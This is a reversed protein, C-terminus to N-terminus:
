LSGRGRGKVSMSVVTRWKYLKRIVQQQFHSGCNAFIHPNTVPVPLLYIKILYIEDFPKFKNSAQSQDVYHLFTIDNTLILKSKFDISVSAGPNVTCTGCINISVRLKSLIAQICFNWFLLYCKNIDVWLMLTEDSLIAYISM